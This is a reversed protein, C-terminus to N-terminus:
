APAAPESVLAVDRLEIRNSDARLPLYVVLTFRACNASPRFTFDTPEDIRTLNCLRRRTLLAGNEDFLIAFVVAEFRDPDDATLTVHGRVYAHIDPRFGEDDGLHDWTGAGLFILTHREHDRRVALQGETHREVHGGTVRVPPDAGPQPLRSLLCRYEHLRDERPPTTSYAAATALIARAKHLVGVDRRYGLRAAVPGCLRHLTRQAGRDWREVPPVTGTRSVNVVRNSVGEALTPYTPIGLARLRSHLAEPDGTVRELPLRDLRRELLQENVRRVYHCAKELQTLNDWGEVDLAPHHDDEPTEYWGRELLSRVVDYPHRHLHVLRADPFHRVLQDLVHVLYINAEAYDGLIEDDVWTRADALLRRVEGPQHPLARFGDATRKEEVFAGDRFRINLTHEHRATVSTGHDLVETLWKSGARATSLFFFTRTPGRYYIPHMLVQHRGRRLDHNLPDPSRTWTGGSDTYYRDVPVHAAHYSLGHAALSEQWLALVQGDERKLQHSSPYPLQYRPDEVHIGEASRGSEDAVPDSPRLDAFLWYNAFGAEYCLRDGHASVGVVDIGGQRLTGLLDALHRGPDHVERRWWEALLNVHLGVEHGFDRLQLCKDVLREEDWYPATHLLFFTARRGREQEWYAVELALDLDHDVDHRLAVLDPQDPHLHLDRVPVTPGFHELYRFFREHLSM